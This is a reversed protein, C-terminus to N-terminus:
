KIGDWAKKGEETLPKGSETELEIKLNFDNPDVSDNLLIRIIMDVIMPNEVTFVFTHTKGQVSIEIADLFQKIEILKKLPFERSEMDGSFIIRKNTITLKGDAVKRILPLQTSLSRWTGAYIGLARSGFGVGTRTTMSKVETLSSNPYEFYCSEGEKLLIGTKVTELKKGDQVKKIFTKLEETLGSSTKNTEPYKPPDFADLGMFKKLWGM